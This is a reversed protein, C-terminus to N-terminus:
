QEEDGRRKLESRIESKFSDTEAKYFQNIGLIAGAFALFEGTGTLVSAAIEGVPPLFLGCFILVIGVLFAVGAFSYAIKEKADKNWTM